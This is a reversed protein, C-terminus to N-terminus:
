IASPCTLSNIDDRLKVAKTRVKTLAPDGSTALLDSLLKAMASQSSAMTQQYEIGRALEPQQLLTAIKASFEPQHRNQLADLLAQQWQKRSDLWITTQGAQAASWMQVRFYQDDSFDGLWTQLREATREARASATAEPSGKLMEQEVEQQRLSMNTALAKVQEDSLSQLLNVAIPTVKEVLPPLLALLQNQYQAIQASDPLATTDTEAIVTDLWDSYRPLEEACHWQFLDGIDRELAQEQDGSLAIYDEVWWIAGWDAFRYALRTSTCGSIVVTLICIAFLRMMLAYASVPTQTSIIM